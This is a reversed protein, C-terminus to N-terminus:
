EKSTSDITLFLNIIMFKLPVPQAIHQIRAQDPAIAIAM